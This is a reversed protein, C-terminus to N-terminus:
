GSRAEQVEVQINGGLQAMSEAFQPFTVAVAEATDIETEGSAALGAVALAMVVRHDGHGHVRAGRLRGGEILLGDPLEEIKAGMGRLERCMVAIRDTEKIRAQPVNLLGTSGKAFCALAAMMPLADPTSNLDLDAGRLDGSRVRIQDAGVEVQAGMLRLYEIVTKDGQPDQLDLGCCTVDNGELAGAALFFTASSFDGAMRRRFPQYAQGGPIRFQRLGEEQFSIGQSRMWDMTMLVYPQENLLPVRIITQGDGLPVNLLLSSLYQSSHAEISTNGGKLRGSVVFPPRGNSRTSFAKAGLDNLSSILPDAPRRRTQADGTLVAAGEKLLACSGLAFMLTTGSNAVDLVDEPAKLNGAVGRVWWSDPGTEIEAGLGRYARVAARTDQSELPRLIASEGVALSAIAVARITHSKSAPIQVQGCLISRRCRFVAGM